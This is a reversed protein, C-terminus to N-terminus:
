FGSNGSRKAAANFIDHYQIPLEDLHKISPDGVGKAYDIWKRIILVDSLCFSALSKSEKALYYNQKDHQSETNAWTSRYKFENLDDLIQSFEVHFPDFSKILSDEPPM